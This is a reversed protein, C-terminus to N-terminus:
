KKQSYTMQRRKLIINSDLLKDIGYAPLMEIFADSIM